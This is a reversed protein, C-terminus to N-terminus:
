ASYVMARDIHSRLHQRIRGLWMEFREEGLETRNAYLVEILHSLSATDLRHHLTALAERVSPPTDGSALFRNLETVLAVRERHNAAAHDDALRLQAALKQLVVAAMFAQTKPYAETVAPGIDQKLSRAIRELLEDMALQQHTPM